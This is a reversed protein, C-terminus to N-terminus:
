KITLHRKTSTYVIKKQKCVFSDTMDGHIECDGTESGSIFKLAQM